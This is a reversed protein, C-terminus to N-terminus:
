AVAEFGCMDGFSIVSGGEGAALIRACGLIDGGGVREAVFEAGRADIDHVAVGEAPVPPQLSLGSRKREHRAFDLCGSPACWRHADRLDSSCVDSSWDSIRM